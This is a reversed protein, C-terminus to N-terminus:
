AREEFATDRMPASDVAEMIELVTECAQQLSVTRAYPNSSQYRSWLKDMGQDDAVRGMISRYGNLASLSGRRESTAELAAALTRLDCRDRQLKWLMFIDYYDRPRTNAVDRVIVTELKESLVTEIPYALITISREEFLLPYRYTVADPTIRDGTTVDVTLPVAMPSYHALLFVRIGPYEDTDRIDETRVYEFRIDDDVEVLCIERFAREASEHTLSFGRVTTDLDKTTRSGVGILSSILVGGKIVMRERWPTLSIRELLRELLYCQMMSQASVGVHAAETKIKAKLQMANTTKM